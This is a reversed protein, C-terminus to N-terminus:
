RDTMAHQVREDHLIRLRANPELHQQLIEHSASLQISARADGHAEVSFCATSISTSHFENVSSFTYSKVFQM